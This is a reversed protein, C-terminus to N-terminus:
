RCRAEADEGGEEGFIVGASAEEENVSWRRGYEEVFAGFEGAFTGLEGTFAGLEGVFTDFEGLAAHLM